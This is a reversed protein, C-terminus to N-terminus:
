RQTTSSSSKWTPTKTRGGLARIGRWSWGPMHTRERRRAPLRLTLSKSQHSGSGGEEEDENGGEDEEVEVSKVPEALEDERGEEDEDEEVEGRNLRALPKALSVEETQNSCGVM